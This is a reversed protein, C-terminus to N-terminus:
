GGLGAGNVGNDGGHWRQRSTGIPMADDGNSDRAAALQDERFCRWPSDMSHLLLLLLFWFRCRCRRHKQQEQQQQQQSNIAPNRPSILRRWRWSWSPIASENVVECRCPVSDDSHIPQISVFFAQCSQPCFFFFVWEKRFIERRKQEKKKKERATHVFQRQTQEIKECFFNKKKEKTM